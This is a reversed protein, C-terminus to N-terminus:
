EMEVAFVQFDTLSNKTGTALIGAGLSILMVAVIFLGVVLLLRSNM